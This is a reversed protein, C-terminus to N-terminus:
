NDVEHNDYKKQEHKILLKSTNKKNKKTVMLAVGFLIVVMAIITMITLDEKLIVWGLLVAIVPSVYAFTNALSASTVRLLYYFDTFGVITIIVILYVQPILSQISVEVLDLSKYEGFLFSVGTLMLGGTIMIMGSSALISVPLQAKTSYISGIAWFM